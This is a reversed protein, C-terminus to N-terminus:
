PNQVLRVPVPAIGGGNIVGGGAGGGGGGSGGGSGCSSISLIYANVTGQPNTEEKLFLQMFGVINVSVGCSNGPCLIQGNSIPQFVPVTVMSDSTTIQKGVLNPNPNNSGGIIKCNPYTGTLTDQGSGNPGEHILCDVGQRTPGVVNGTEMNLTVTAGCTFTNTNCCEINQRYLSAGGGGGGNVCSPCEAPATGPPLDVPYYQSPVIAQNPNGPKITLLTGLVSPNAITNSPTVFYNDSTPCAPNSNSGGTHSPDCNPFLWPKLCYTGIGPGNGNGPNYAEATAKAAIDVQSVGFIAGFFTPVADSRAASRQVEVTIRPDNAVSFNFSVDGSQINPNLGGVLDQNGVSIAENTAQAQFSACGAVTSTCGSNAWLTAGALAAADAARQAESKVVFFNAIDVALAAMGLLMILCLAVMLLTAGREANRLHNKMEENRM